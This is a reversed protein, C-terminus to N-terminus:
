ILDLDFRKGCIGFLYAQGYFVCVRERVCLCQLEKLSCNHSQAM